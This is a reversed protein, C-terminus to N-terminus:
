VIIFCVTGFKSLMSSMDEFPYMEIKLWNRRIRKNNSRVGNQGSFM